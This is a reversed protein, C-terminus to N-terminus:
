AGRRADRKDQRRQVWRGMEVLLYGTLVGPGHQIIFDIM